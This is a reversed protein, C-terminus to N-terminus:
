NDIDTLLLRQFVQNSVLFGQDTLAFGTTTEDILRNKLLPHLSEILKKAASDGYKQRVSQMHLGSAMRLHTHCFDTFSEGKSLKEYQGKKFSDEVEEAHTLENIDSMYRDYSSANWFRYGWSPTNKYSHASLGVGWYSKDTWYLTNHRSEFGPKAFNSLEYRNLDISQFHSIVREFMEIQGDDDVRGQNMPHKEPLTLCYASIHPPNWQIMEQIDSELLSLGQKPLSFLLDLSYNEFYKQVLNLTKRTEDANHERNCAKLLEDDFSQCGVSVRNVGIKTLAKCKDETLTAPNVELTIEIDNTFQFGEKQLKTIITEIQQPELLSPTGGGFYITQLTRETFLHKRIEIERCLQEVYEDNPAREHKAYTAFDCYHCRQICFPIHVYVGLAEM